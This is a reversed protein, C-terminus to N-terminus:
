FSSLEMKYIFIVKIDKVGKEGNNQIGDQNEDNWVKDGISGNSNATFGGDLNHNSCSNGDIKLDIKAYGNGNDYIDSDIKDKKNDNVDNLTIKMDKLAPSSLLICISYETDKEIGYGNKMNVNEVGGFYYRGKSDTKAKGVQTGSCSNGLYLEVEVDAIGFEDPDQIGDGNNDKWVYDGIEVPPTDCIIEIDGMGGAKSGYIEREGEPDDKLSHPNILAQAGVKDGSKDDFLAVSGPEYSETSNAMGVFFLSDGRKVALAGSSTEPHGNVGYNSNNEDYFDGRFYEYYKDGGEVYQIEHSNCDTPAVDTSEDTFTGDENKCMKRIDGSTNLRTRIFTGRDAYGLILNGASDFEIDTMMPQNYEGHDIWNNNQHMQDAPESGDKEPEFPRPKLYNLTNTKALISFRNGDFKQIVAGLEKSHDATKPYGASIKNECVSGIFVVNGIVKLAWPRVNIDECDKDYPNPIVEKQLVKGTASDIKILEKKYLNVTYLFKGDDSIDLDGLGARGSLAVVELDKQKAGDYDRKDKLIYGVEANGLDTLVEVSGKGNDSIKYIVGACGNGNSDEDSCVGSLLPVYRKIVASAFVNKNNKQHALGWIAGLEKRTKLVTRKSIDRDFVSKQPTPLAFLAGHNQPNGESGDAGGPFASIIIDPDAQCFTTLTAVSINHNLNGSEVFDVLSSSNGVGNAGSNFGITKPVAEVRCRLGKKM